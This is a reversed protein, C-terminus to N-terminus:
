QYEKLKDIFNEGWGVINGIGLVYYGDLDVIKNVVTEPSSSM